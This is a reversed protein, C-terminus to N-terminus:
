LGVGGREGWLSSCGPNVWLSTPSQSLSPNPTPHSWSLTGPALVPSFNLAEQSCLRARVRVGVPGLIPTPSLGHLSKAAAANSLTAPALAPGWHPPPMGPSLTAPQM